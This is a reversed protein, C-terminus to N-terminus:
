YEYEPTIDRAWQRADKLSDFHQIFTNANPHYMKVYPDMGRCEEQVYPSNLLVAGGSSNRYFELHDTTNRTTSHNKLRKQIYGRTQSTDVKVIDFDEIFKNRNEIIEETHSEDGLTFGSWYVHRYIEPYNTNGDTTTMKYELIYTGIKTTLFV